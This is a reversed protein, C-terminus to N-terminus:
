QQLTYSMSSKDPRRWYSLINDRVRLCSVACRGDEGNILSSYFHISVSRSCFSFHSLFLFFEFSYFFLVCNWTMCNWYLSSFLLSFFFPHCLRYQSSHKSHIIAIIKFYQRAPLYVRMWHALKQMREKSWKESMEQGHAWLNLRLLQLMTKKKWHSTSFNESSLNIVDIGGEWKMYVNSYWIMNVQNQQQKQWMMDISLIYVCLWPSSFCLSLFFTKRKNEYYHPVRKREDDGVVLQVFAQWLRIRNPVCVNELKSSSFLLCFFFFFCRLM